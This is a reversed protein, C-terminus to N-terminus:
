GFITWFQIWFRGLFPGFDGGFHGWFPGWLFSSFFVFIQLGFHVGFRGWSPDLVGWSARPRGLVGGLRWWSPQLKKKSPEQLPRPPTKPRRWHTKFANHRMELFHLFCCTKYHKRAGPRLLLRRRSTKHADQSTNPCDQPGRPPRWLRGPFSVLSWKVPRVVSHRM